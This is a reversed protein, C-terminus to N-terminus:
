RAHLFRMGPQFNELPVGNATLWEATKEGYALVERVVFTYKAKIAQTYTDGKRVSQVKAFSFQEGDSIVIQKGGFQSDVLFNGVPWKGNAGRKGTWGTAKVAEEGCVKFDKLLPAGSGFSNVGCEMINNLLNSM